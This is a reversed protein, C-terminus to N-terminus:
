VPCPIGVSASQVANAHLPVALVAYACRLRRAPQGPGAPCTAAGRVDPCHYRPREAAAPPPLPLHPRLILPLRPAPPSDPATVSTPSDAATPDPPMPTAAVHKRCDGTDSIRPGVAVRVCEKTGQAWHWQQHWPCRACAHLQRKTAFSMCATLLLALLLVTGSWMAIRRPNPVQREFTMRLSPDDNIRAVGSTELPRSRAHAGDRCRSRARGAAPHPTPARSSPVADDALCHDM